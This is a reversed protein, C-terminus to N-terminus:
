KSEIFMKIHANSELRMRTHDSGTPTMKINAWVDTGLAAVESTVDASYEGSESTTFPSGTVASESGEIGISVAVSSTEPFTDETILAGVSHTHRDITYNQVLRWVLADSM